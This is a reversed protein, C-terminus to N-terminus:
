VLCFPMVYIYWFWQTSYILCRKVRVSVPSLKVPSSSPPPTVAGDDDSGVPDTQRGVKKVPVRKFQAERILVSSLLVCKFSHYFCM